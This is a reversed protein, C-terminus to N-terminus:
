RAICQVASSEGYKNFFIVEPAGGAEVMFQNVPSGGHKKMLEIGKPIMKLYDFFCETRVHVIDVEFIGM